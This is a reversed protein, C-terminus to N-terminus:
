RQDLWFKEMSIYTFSASWTILVLGNLSQIGAMIRLPGELTLDGVGLTTFTTASFYFYDFGNGELTGTLAGLGLLNIGVWYGLAYLGIQLMHAIMVAAVVVLTRRRPPITLMPILASVRLLVEYHLVCAAVVLVASLLTILLHDM